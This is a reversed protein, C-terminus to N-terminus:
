TVCSFIVLAAHPIVPTLFRPMALQHAINSGLKYTRTNRTFSRCFSSELRQSSVQEIQNQSKAPHSNNRFLNHASKTIARISMSHILSVSSYRLEVRVLLWTIFSKMIMIFSDTWLSVFFYFSDQPFLALQGISLESVRQWISQSMNWRTFDAQFCITCREKTGRKKKKKKAQHM